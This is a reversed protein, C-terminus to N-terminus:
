HRQSKQGGFQWHDAKGELADALVDRFCSHYLKTTYDSLFISRCKEPAQSSGKKFLPVLWGSKWQLPEHQLISAKAFMIQLHRALDIGGVKLLASPIEDPGPAKGRKIRKLKTMIQAISPIVHRCTVSIQSESVEQRAKVFDELGIMQAGEMKAFQKFFVDQRHEFSRVVEGDPTKLAPLPKM